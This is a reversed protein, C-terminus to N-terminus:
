DGGLHTWEIATLLRVSVTDSTEPSPNTPPAAVVSMREVPMTDDWKREFFKEAEHMVRRKAHMRCHFYNLLSPNTAPRDGLSPAEWSSNLFGLPIKEKNLSDRVPCATRRGVSISRGEEHFIMM